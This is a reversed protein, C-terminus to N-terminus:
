GDRVWVELRTWPDKYWGFSQIVGGEPTRIKDLSDLAKQIDAPPEGVFHKQAYQRLDSRWFIPDNLWEPHRDRLVNLSVLAVEPISGPLLQEQTEPAPEFARLIKRLWPIGSLREVAVEVPAKREAEARQAMSLFRMKNLFKKASRPTRHEEFLVPAWARLADAFADSDEVRNDERPTILWLIVGLASLALLGHLWWATTPTSGQTLSVPEDVSTPAIRQVSASDARAATPVDVAPGATVRSAAAPQEAVQPQSMQDLWGSGNWGILFTAATLVVAVGTLLYSRARRRKQERGEPGEEPEVGDPPLTPATKTMVDGLGEATAPPIPIEMNLLKELYHEAYEIQYEIDTKKRPPSTTGIDPKASGAVPKERTEALVTAVEKFGIAVCGTVRQRDIGLVVVCDGSDALFNIAELIELVQEPKCRDLDDVFIVIREPKLAETVESFDKAFRYRFAPQAEITKVRGASVVSRAVEGPKVGFAKFGKLYTVVTGAISIILALVTKNQSVATSGPAPESVDNPSFVNFLSSFVADLDHWRKSPNKLIYGLALAFVPLLVLAPVAYRSLRSALLRIRFRIGKPSWVPPTATLRISELLSALLSEERQHHWANFWITRFRRRELDRRLLNMLSSKGTGWPGTIAITLPPETRSNRIFRSLGAAIRGFDLVDPDGERLPRDSVLIDAISKKTETESRRRARSTALTAGVTLAAFGYYWPAPYKRPGGVPVAAWQRGGDTSRILNGLTDLGYALTTTVPSAVLVGTSLTDWKTGNFRLVRKDDTSVWLQSAAGRERLFSFGRLEMAQAQKIGAMVGTPNARTWTQGGDRTVSLSDDRGIGWGTQRDAFFVPAISDPPSYRIWTDGADRSQFQGHDTTATIEGDPRAAFHLSPATELSDPRTFTWSQGGNTTRAILGTEMGAFGRLSDVFHVSVFRSTNILAHWSHGGDISRLAGGDAAYWIKESAPAFRVSFSHFAARVACTNWEDSTGWLQDAGDLALAVTGSGAVMKRLSILATDKGPAGFSCGPDRLWTKGGDHTRAVGKPRQYAFGNLSDSFAIPGATMTDLAPARVWTRGTDASRLVTGRNGVYLDYALLAGGSTIAVEGPRYTTQRLETTASDRPLLLVTYNGVAVAGMADDCAIATLYTETNTALQTWMAGDNATRFVAGRDGVVWGVGSSTFCIANFSPYFTPATVATDSAPSTASDAPRQPTAGPPSGAVSIEVASGIAVTDGESPRQAIVMGDPARSPSQYRTAGVRLQAAKLTALALDYKLGFLKPVTTTKLQQQAYPSSQQVMSALSVPVTLGTPRRSRYSAKKAAAPASYPPQVQQPPAAQPTASLTTSTWTRGGDASHAVLGGAGAFWVDESGRRAYVAQLPGKSVAMRQVANREIPYRWWDQSTWRSARLPEARPPQLLAVVTGAILVLAGVLTVVRHSSRGGSGPSDHPGQSSSQSQEPAQM